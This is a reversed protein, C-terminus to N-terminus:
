KSLLEQGQEILLRAKERESAISSARDAPKAWSQPLGSAWLLPFAAALGLLLALILGQKRRRLGREKFRLDQQLEQEETQLSAILIPDTDTLFRDLQEAEKKEPLRGDGRVLQFPRNRTLTPKGLKM